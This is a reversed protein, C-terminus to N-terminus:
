KMQDQIRKYRKYFPKKFKRLHKTVKTNKKYISVFKTKGRLDQNLGLNKIKKSDVEKITTLKIQDKLLKRNYNNIMNQNTLM